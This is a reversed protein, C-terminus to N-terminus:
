VEPKSARTSRRLPSAGQATASPMAAPLVAPVATPAVRDVAIAGEAAIPEPPAMVPQSQVAPTESNLPPAEGELRLRPERPENISVNIDRAPQQGFVDSLTEEIEQYSMKLISTSPTTVRPPYNWQGPYGTQPDFRRRSYIMGRQPMFVRHHGPSNSELGLYICWETRLDPQDLRKSYCLGVQGYAHPRLVPLLGSVM